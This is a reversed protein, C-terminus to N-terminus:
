KWAGLLRRILILQGLHHSNHDAVLLAERALTQGKGHALPETLDNGPDLVLRRMEERDKRFGSVSENWAAPSEPAPSSPWYGSPWAPSVHKPDRSFELIDQQAIRMHEVLEWVSHPAGPPRVGALEFPMDKVAADFGQHAENWTLMDAIQKRLQDNEAM